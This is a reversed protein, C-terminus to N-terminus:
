VIFNMEHKNREGNENQKRQKLTFEIHNVLSVFATWQKDNLEVKNKESNKKKNNQTKVSKM